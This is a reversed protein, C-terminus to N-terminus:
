VAMEVNEGGNYEGNETAHEQATESVREESVLLHCRILQYCALLVSNGGAM